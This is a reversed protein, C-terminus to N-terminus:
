FPRGQRTLAGLEDSLDDLWDMTRIFKDWSLHESSIAVASMYTAIDQLGRVWATVQGRGVLVVRRDALNASMVRLARELEQFCDAERWLLLWDHEDFGLNVRLITSLREDTLVEPPLALSVPAGLDHVLTYTSTRFRVLRHLGEAYGRLSEIEYDNFLGVVATRDRNWFAM